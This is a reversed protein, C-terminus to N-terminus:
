GNRVDEFNDDSNPELSIRITEIFNESLSVEFEDVLETFLMNRGEIDFCRSAM